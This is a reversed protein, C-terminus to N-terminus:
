GVRILADLAMAGAGKPFLVIPNIEVEEIEPHSRVLAGLASLVHAAADVDVPPSGRFGRLLRACKLKGLEDGIEEASLDPAMLRVDRMAEALVGGSGALLVPGWDPDNRAGFILELGKPSMHEVLVGDLELGPKHEAVNRELATWSQRLGGEDEIGLIVGGADSKHSLEIAQAKLAIPYGITRAIM